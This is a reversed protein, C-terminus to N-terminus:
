RSVLLDCLLPCLVPLQGCGRCRGHQPFGSIGAAAASGAAAAAAPRPPPPAAAAAVENIADEDAMTGVDDQNEFRRKVIKPKPCDSACHAGMIDVFYTTQAAQLQSKSADPTMSSYVYFM